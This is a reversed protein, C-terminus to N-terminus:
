HCKADNLIAVLLSAPVGFQREIRALLQAHVQMLRTARKIRAPTVRTRSYEEFSKSHFMGKQRRDFALVNPDITVGAFAQDIVSRSVGAAQAERGMAALFGHFDGGCQAALTPTALLFTLLFASLTRALMACVVVDARGRALGSTTMGPRASLAFRSDM